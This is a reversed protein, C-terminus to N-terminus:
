TSMRVDPGTEAPGRRRSRVLGASESLGVDAIEPATPGAASPEARLRPKRAEPVDAVRERARDPLELCWVACPRLHPGTECRCRRVGRGSLRCSRVDVRGIEYSDTVVLRGFIARGRVVPPPPLHTCEGIVIGLASDGLAFLVNNPLRRRM